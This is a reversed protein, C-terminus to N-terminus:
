WRPLSLPTDSPESPGWVMHVRGYEGLRLTTM